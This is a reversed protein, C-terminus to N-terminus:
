RAKGLRPCGGPTPGWVDLWFAMAHIRGAKKEARQDDRGLDEADPGDAEADGPPTGAVMDAPEFGLPLDIRLPQLVAQVPQLAGEIRHRGVQVTQGRFLGVKLGSERRWWPAGCQLRFASLM